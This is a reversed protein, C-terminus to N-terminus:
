RYCYSKIVQDGSYVSCTGTCPVTPVTPKPHPHIGFVKSLSKAILKHIFAGMETSLNAAGGVMTSLVKKNNTCFKQNKGSKESDKCLIEDISVIGLPGFIIPAVVAPGTVIAVTVWTYFFGLSSSVYGAAECHGLDASAQIEFIWVVRAFSNQVL